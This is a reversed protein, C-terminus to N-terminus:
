DEDSVSELPLGWEGKAIYSRSTAGRRFISQSLLEAVLGNMVVIIGVLMLFVSILFIPRSTVSVHFFIRDVGLYALIVLGIGLFWLGVTGFLRIPRDAFNLIFYLGIIDLFVKGTRSLGYKSRGTVRKRQTVPFELLRAGALAGLAPIFRHMDGRLQLTRALDARMVKLPSGFDHIPVHTAAAIMRNAAKSPVTRLVNEARSQRWGTVMDAEGAIVPTIMAPIDHPDDQGDGDMQIVIDAWDPIRDLGAQMATSKGTRRALELTEVSPLEKGVERLLEPTGDNSGDDVMLIRRRSSIPALIANLEILVDRVAGVENLVPIIVFVAPLWPSSPPNSPSNVKTGRTTKTPQPADTVTPDM